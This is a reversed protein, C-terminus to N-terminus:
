MSPVFAKRANRAMLSPDTTANFRRSQSFRELIEGGARVVRRDLESGSYIDLVKIRYGWEGSLRLNFISVLGDDVEVAWRHRRGEPGPYTKCLKEMIQKGLLQQAATAPIGNIHAERMDSITEPLDHEQRAQQRRETIAKRMRSVHM